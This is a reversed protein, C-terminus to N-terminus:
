KKERTMSLPLEGEYHVAKGIMKSPETMKLSVAVEVGDSTYMKFSLSDKLFSVKEGNLRINYEPFFMSATYKNDAYTVNMDGKKYGEPADPIEFKWVGEPNNSKALQGQQAFILVSFFCGFILTFFSRKM